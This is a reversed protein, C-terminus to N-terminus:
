VQGSMKQIDSDTAGSGKRGAGQSLTWLILGQSFLAPFINSALYKTFPFSQLEHRFAAEAQSDHETPDYWFFLVQIEEGMVVEKTGGAASFNIILCVQDFRRMLSLCM